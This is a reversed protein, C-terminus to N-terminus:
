YIGIGEEIEKQEEKKIAKNINEIAKAAWNKVHVSKHDDLQRLLDIHEKYYPIISGTWGKPGLSHYIAWLVDEKEGFNEFLFEAVKNWRKKNDSIETMSAFETIAVPAKEPNDRCWQILFDSDLYNFIFKGEGKEAFYPNLFSILRHRELWEGELIISSIVPWTIDQYNRILLGVVPSLQHELDLSFDESKSLRIVENLVYKALKENYFEKKLIYKLIEEFHHLSNSHRKNFCDFLGPSMVVKKFEDLLQKRIDEDNLSYFFLIELASTAAKTDLKLINETLWIIDETKWHALTKGYAFLKLKDTELKGKFALNLIRELDIKQPICMATLDLTYASLDDDESISDMTKRYLSYDKSHIAYLFGGLVSPNVTEKPLQRMKELMKEIFFEAKETNEGLAKGFIFGKRQEGSLIADLNLILEGLDDALEKALNEAEIAALDIYHGNEDKEHTYSPVSVMIELKQRLNQPQLLVLWGELRERGEKPISDKMRNLTELVTNYAESWFEKEEKLVRKFATDLDDLRGYHVLGYFGNIFQEKALGKFESNSTIISTLRTLGERWYDFAENWYKPTYDKQPPRSGQREIGGSRTFHDTQIVHGLAKVGLERYKNNDSVLAEDIIPLRLSYPAQTGSLFTHFLQLFQNTANNGWTENEAAAFSRMLRAAVPFTSEWWCLKELSWILNRRAPGIKLLEDTSLRSFVKELAVVTSEPDVEVLSRFLRSGRESKLVEAQGFPGQEGCLDKTINKAEPLFDLKSMQDCLAESMQSPLLDIFLSRAREPSCKRWWEAALRIALPLPVVRVFRNRKDLVGQKIFDVSFSYFKDSSINCIKEAVFIRQDTLDDSFGLHTFLSISSIVELAEKDESNRGWLLKNMLVTDNLSGIDKEDNLRAKGLLVAIAPFGQAFEKIRSIDSDKLTPYKQKIIGEIVEDSSVGIRILYEESNKEPNYDITLLSLNSKEHRVQKKLKDHLEYDCNDVIINGSLGHTRWSSLYGPIEKCISADVYVVQDSRAQQNFDDQSNKPPRFVEFALRTKGLGSLGVIRATRKPGSFHDRLQNINEQLSKDSVYKISNDTFGKWDEWTHIAEPVPLGLSEYVYLQAPLYNNAWNAIKNADYIDIDCTKAYNKGTSELTERIKRIRKSILTANLSNKYFLIYCGSADLVEEVRQKLNGNRDLLEKGCNQIDMYTAKCQFLTNSNKIWNTNSPEGDWFISCDDGADGVTIKLSGSVCHSPIDFAKAELHLLRNLLSTLQIDGLREIQQNTIEFLNPM